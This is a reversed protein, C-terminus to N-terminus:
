FRIVDDSAVGGRKDRSGAVSGVFGLRLEAILRTAGSALPLARYRASVLHFVPLIPVLFTRITCQQFVTPIHVSAASYFLAGHIHPLLNILAGGVIVARDVGM